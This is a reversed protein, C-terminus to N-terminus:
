EESKKLGKRLALMITEEIKHVLDDLVLDDSSTKEYETLIHILKKLRDRNTFSM